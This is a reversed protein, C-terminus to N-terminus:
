QVANGGVIWKAECTSKGDQEKDPGVKFKTAVNWSGILDNLQAHQESPFKKADSQALCSATGVLVLGTALGIRMASTM